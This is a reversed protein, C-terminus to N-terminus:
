GHSAGWTTRAASAWGADVPVTVGTIGSARPSSLFLVSSAVEVATVPRGLPAASTWWGHGLPWAEALGDREILGAAVANVRAPAFEVAAAATLSVLAAKSAAYASHNPFPALAEVSAVNVVCVGDLATARTCVLRTLEAVALLNVELLERWVSMSEQGLPTQRQDAANNVLLSIPGLDDEVAQVLGLLVDAGGALDAMVPTATGGAAAIENVVAIANAESRGHVAVRVGEAALTRAIEQGLGATAGTVLAVRGDLSWIDAV